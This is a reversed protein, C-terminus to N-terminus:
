LFDVMTYEEDNFRHPRSYLKDWLWPLPIYTHWTSGNLNVCGQKIKLGKAWYLSIWKPKKIAVFGLNNISEYLQNFLQLEENNPEGEYTLCIISDTNQLFNLVDSFPTKAEWLGHALVWKNNKYKVRLDFLRCGAKYQEVITKNQTRSFPRILWSLLGKSPEGTASDHTGILM